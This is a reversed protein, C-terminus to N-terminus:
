LTAYISNLKEIFIPWALNQEFSQRANAGLQRRLDASAALRRMEIALIDSNKPPVLIGNIGDKIYEPQAGNDTTIVPRGEAMCEINSLGFAEPATSPSVSFHSNRIFDAAEEKHRPWDIMNMVGAEVAMNRLSDVFDPHGTGVMRLRLKIEKIQALAEIIYEIGKDPALRGLYIANVPGKEPEPAVPRLPINLSNHIVHLRPDNPSITMRSSWGSFFAEKAKNSVFILDDVNRYVFRHLPSRGARRVYHRTLVVLINHRSILKRAILASFADRTSHCHVVTPLDSSVFLSSMSKVAEYSYFGGLPAFAIPISHHRFVDDVTRADRTVAIVDHGHDRYHRCIDLAYREVGSWMVSSLVHIIRM